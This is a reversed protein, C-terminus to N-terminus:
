WTIYLRLLEAEEHTIIGDKIARIRQNVLYCDPYIDALATRINQTDESLKAFNRYHIENLIDM